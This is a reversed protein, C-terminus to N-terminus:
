PTDVEYEHFVWIVPHYAQTLVPGAWGRAFADLPIAATSLSSLSFRVNDAQLEAITETLLPQLWVQLHVGLGYYKDEGTAAYLTVSQRGWPGQRLYVTEVSDASFGSPPQRHFGASEVLAGTAALLAQHLAKSDPLGQRMRWESFRRDLRASVKAQAQPDDAVKGLDDFVDADLHFLRLYDNLFNTDYYARAFDAGEKSLDGDLLKGDCHDFLLDRGTRKGGLVNAAHTILRPDALGRQIAWGLFMGVHTGGAENPTDSEFNLFYMEADDIKM